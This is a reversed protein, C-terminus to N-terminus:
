IKKHQENIYAYFEDPNDLKSEPFVYAFATDLYVLIMGNVREIRKVLSWSHDGTYGRGTSKIGDSDFIFTHEGIFVGDESPAYAKKVKSLNIFFLAILLIFFASVVGATPWHFRGKSEFVSMITFAIVAWLVINFWFSNTWSKVTKPLEKELQSQFLNWDERELKITIEM